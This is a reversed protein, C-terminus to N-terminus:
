DEKSAIECAVKWYAQLLDKGLEEFTYNEFRGTEDDLIFDKKYDLKYIKIEYGGESDGYYGIDIIGSTKDEIFKRLQGESLLPIRDGDDTGKFSNTMEVINDSNCCELKRLDHEYRDDKKIWSFLDGISPKWWDIFVEQVEKSQKLFEETSIYEM